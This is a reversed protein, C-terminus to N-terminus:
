RPNTPVNVALQCKWCISPSRPSGWRAPCEKGVKSRCGSALVPSAVSALWRRAPQLKRAFRARAEEDGDLAEAMVLRVQVRLYEARILWGGEELADAYVLRAGVDSAEARTLDLLERESSEFDPPVIPVFEMVVLTSDGLAIVSGIKVVRSGSALAVGDVVVAAMPVLELLGEREILEVHRESVSRSRLVVDAGTSRGISLSPLPRGIGLAHRTFAVTRPAAEPESIQLVLM